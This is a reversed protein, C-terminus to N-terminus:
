EDKDGTKDSIRWEMRMGFVLALFLAGIVTMFFVADPGLSRIFTAWRFYDTMESM